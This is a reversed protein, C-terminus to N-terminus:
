VHARGIERDTPGSGAVIIALSKNQDQSPKLITGYITGDNVKIKREGSHDILMIIFIAIIVVIPVIIWKKM